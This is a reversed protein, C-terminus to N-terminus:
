RSGATHSFRHDRAATPDVAVVEKRVAHGVCADVLASHAAADERDLREEVVPPTKRHNPGKSDTHRHRAHMTTEQQPLGERAGNVRVNDYGELMLPFEEEPLPPKGCDLKMGEVSSAYKCMARRQLNFIRVLDCMWAPAREEFKLELVVGDYPLHYPPQDPPPSVGRQPAVLRGLEGDVLTTADYPTAAVQRDFTVRVEDFRRLEYAERLYSLYAVPRAKLVNCLQWFKFYADLSEADQLHDAYPWSSPYPWGCKLFEQVTQRSVKVRDKVINDNVRRKIELFAPSDWHDDYYRIRLKMRNRNGCSTQRYLFFGPSDLYLSIIPRGRVPANGNESYPSLRMHMRVYDAVAVARDEDIVYKLEYRGTRRM